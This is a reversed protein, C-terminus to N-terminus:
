LHKIVRAHIQHLIEEPLAGLGGKGIAETLDAAGSFLGALVTRTRTAQDPGGLAALLGPLYTLPDTCRITVALASLLLDELWGLSLQTITDTSVLDSVLWHQEEDSLELRMLLRGGAMENSQRLMQWVDPWHREVLPCVRDGHDRGSMWGYMPSFARGISAAVLWADPGVPIVYFVATTEDDSLQVALEDYYDTHRSLWTDHATPQSIPRYPHQLVFLPPVVPMGVFSLRMPENISTRAGPM